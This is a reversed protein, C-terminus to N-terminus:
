LPTMFCCGPCRNFIKQHRIQKRFDRLPRENWAKKFRLRKLDVGDSNFCQIAVGNPDILVHVWPNTCSFRGPDLRDAYYDLFDQMPIPPLFSTRKRISEPLQSLRDFSDKLENLRAFRIPEPTEHKYNQLSAARERDTPDLGLYCFFMQSSVMQFTVADISSSHLAMAFLDLYPATEERVLVKLELSPFSKGQRKREQALRDFLRIKEELIIRCQEQSDMPENVSIGIQILGKDWVRKAGLRIFSPITRDDFSTGNTVAVTRHRKAGHQLIEYMNPHCFIEGGSFGILTVNPIQDLIAKWQEAGTHVTPNQHRGHGALCFPCEM